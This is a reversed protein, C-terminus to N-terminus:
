LEGDSARAMPGSPPQVGSSIARKVAWWQVATVRPGRMRRASVAAIAAMAMTDACRMEGGPSGAHFECAEGDQERGSQEGMGGQSLGIREGADDVNVGVSRGVGGRAADVGDVEGLERLAAAHAGDDVLVVVLGGGIHGIEDLLLDGSNEGETADVEVEGDAAHVRDGYLLHREGGAVEAAEDPHGGVVGM